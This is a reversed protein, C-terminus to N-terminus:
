ASTSARKCCEYLSGVSLFPFSGLPSSFAQRFSAALPCSIGPMSLSLFPSIPVTPPCLSRLHVCFPEAPPSAPWHFVSRSDRAVRRSFLAPNEGQNIPPSGSSEEAAGSRITGLLQLRRAPSSSVGAFILGNDRLDQYFRLAHVVRETGVSLVYKWNLHFV